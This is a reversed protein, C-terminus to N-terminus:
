IKLRMEKLPLVSAGRPRDNDCFAERRVTGAAKTAGLQIAKGVASPLDDVTLILTCKSKNSAVEEPWVPPIYEFDRRQREV